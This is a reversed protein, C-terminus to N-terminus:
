AVESSLAVEKVKNWDYGIAAVIAPILEDISKLNNEALENEKNDEIVSLPYRLNPSFWFRNDPKGYGTDLDLIYQGLQAVSQSVIDRGGGISVPRAFANAYSVPSKKLEILIGDPPNHAAFSNQKGTPNVTAAARIFAGVTHAALEKNGKLNKVLDEFDISFYKYFCASSFLAEDVYGAGTDAGPIDDAAVYYDVEPRAEHTSIAHAVQLAAEVTTDKLVGTELMRGNLAMDPVATLESILGGFESALENDSKGSSNELLDAMKSIAEKTTYVLMDSKEEDKPAIGCKKLIAVARKKADAKGQIRESILKALQRTRVGGCLSKFEESMRISRKVCQSSIRSRIVGGFYCTKPAGLDDRNLNAPSHNQIMHIEILM